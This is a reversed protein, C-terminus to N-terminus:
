IRRIMVDTITPSLPSQGIGRGVVRAIGLQLQLPLDIRGPVEGGICIHCRCADVRGLVIREGAVAFAAMRVRGSCRTVRALGSPLQHRLDIRGPVERSIGIHCRRADVRGLVVGEGAVAFATVGVGCSCVAIGPPLLDIRIPVYCAVGVHHLTADIRSFVVSNPTM